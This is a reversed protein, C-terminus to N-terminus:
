LLFRGASVIVVILLGLSLNLAVIQRIQNLRAGGEPWAQAAVAQRLARFPVFFLYVYLAAMLYGLLMMLHVHMGVAAMGGLLGIMGHGSALLLVVAGWVWRFFNALTANWLPLRQPPELLQAAAPRLCLYAFFMGGVWVVASLLHLMLMFTIAM